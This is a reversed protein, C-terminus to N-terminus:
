QAVPTSLGSDRPGSTVNRQIPCLLIPLTATRLVRDAVSGILVRDVPGRGHTALIIFECGLEVAARDITIAPNSDVRIATHVNMGRATLRGAVDTLYREAIGRQETLDREYEQDSAIARLLKHLPLVVRLLTYSTETGMVAAFNIALESEATGDLAILAHRFAPPALAADPEDAPRVVLMPVTLRHVLGDTVSGLWLRSLGGRGHTTLVVLDVSFEAVHNAITAAVPGDLLQTSIVMDPESSQLRLQTDYLYRRRSARIAADLRSEHALTEDGARRASLSEHVTLLVVTAGTNRAVRLAIPLACEAVVSGDLPVLITRTM